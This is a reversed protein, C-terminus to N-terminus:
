SVHENLGQILKKLMRMEHDLAEQLYLFDAESVYNRRKAIILHTELEACSSLAVYCFQQYEKTHHRTHGEAINSPISIAARQMQSCLIFKEDSPFQKTMTYIKDVIEIGKQWVNLDKYNQIMKKKKGIGTERYGIGAKIKRGM